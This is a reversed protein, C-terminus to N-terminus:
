PRPPMREDRHQDPVLRAATGSALLLLLPVLHAHYRPKVELFTHLLAEMLLLGIVLIVIPAPRRRSRLLGILVALAAALTGVYAVQALLDIGALEGQPQGNPRFAFVVGYEETGWMVNFKRLSLSAFGAPDATIRDVGLEQAAESRDWLTNGPLSRIIAADGDSYRGNTQQNTGMFLSWGGYSSTSVSLEGHEALNNAIVPLMAVLFALVLAAILTWARRLPRVWLIPVLALAPLLAPGVPRVYQTVALLVGSGIAVRLGGNATRVAAACLGIILTTYVVDTLLLPTLLVQTPLVAFGFIAVTAPGRGFAERALKFLLGGGIVAAALNIAEHALSGDGLAAYGAALLAPYGTPRDAFCCGGSTLWRALERYALGDNALPADVALLVVLRVLGVLGLGALLLQLDTLPSRAAIVAALLTLLLLAVGATALLAGEAGLGHPFSRIASAVLSGTRLTAFAGVLVVFATGLVLLVREWSAQDADGSQDV